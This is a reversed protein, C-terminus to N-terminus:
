QGGIPSGSGSILVGHRLRMERYFFEMRLQKRNAAHAAFDDDNCLFHSDDRVELEIGAASLGQVLRRQIRWEGARVMVVKLPKLRHVAPLLVTDLSEACDHGVELHRYLVNFGALKLRAAFHGMSALFFAIRAKSAWVQESEEAVEAMWICDLSPDLHRIVDSAADLQDGLIV